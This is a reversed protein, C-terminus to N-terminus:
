EVANFLGGSLCSDLKLRKVENMSNKYPQFDPRLSSVKIIFHTYFQTNITLLKELRGSFKSVKARNSM